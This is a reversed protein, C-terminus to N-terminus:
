SAPLVAASGSRRPDGAAGARTVVSVGGFYHHREPWTRVEYGAAELSLAVDAEFGPELHVLGPVPHLRPREVAEAPGLGEDFIGALVQVLASRLRTGGAAGGVFALGSGDLGLTPSMMSAMREGPELPGRVLDAEGLMSNLHLDLGPLFDGSGLGLSSTLVCANGEADVVAINTTEGSADPRELSRALTVAREGPTLGRLRPLAALAADLRRLGARTLVSTGLYEVDVPESWQAEYARLDNPTVLGGREDILALLAEALSGTYLSEPGEHVLLELADVLGPQQLSDGARLLEGGPAYIRAGENMTMVPALMALCSAHAPPFEVGDRALRLAPEALHAWPLRGHERHLAGLGAPLGPVGCSAIGVAYHVLEAGFPVELELLEVDSQEGAGLGPVAVFCDLNRALGTSAEYHIAHGGGLLGTMVTEAVCSALSAAVAADAASGGAALIEAGAEVTAPHGAAM